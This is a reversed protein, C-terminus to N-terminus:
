EIYTFTAPDLNNHECLYIPDIQCVIYIRMEIIHKQKKSITQNM